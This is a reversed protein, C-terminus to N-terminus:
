LNDIAQQKTDFFIVDSKSMVIKLIKGSRGRVELQYDDIPNLEQDPGIYKAHLCEAAVKGAEPHHFTLWMGSWKRCLVRRHEKPSMGIQKRPEPPPTDRKAKLQDWSDTM